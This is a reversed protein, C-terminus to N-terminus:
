AAAIEAKGITLEGNAFNMVMVCDKLLNTGIAPQDDYSLVVNVVRKEGGWNISARCVLELRSEGDAYDVRIVDHFPLKMQFAKSYHIGVDGDFGTDVLFQLIESSNKGALDLTIYPHRHNEIIGSIM